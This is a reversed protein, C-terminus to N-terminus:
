KRGGNIKWIRNELYILHKGRAAKWHMFYKDDSLPTACQEFSMKDSWLWPVQWHWSGCLSSVCKHLSVTRCAEAQCEVRPQSIDMCVAFPDCTLSNRQSFLAATLLTKPNMTLNFLNADHPSGHVNQLESNLNFAQLTCNVFEATILFSTFRELFTLFTTKIGGASVLFLM